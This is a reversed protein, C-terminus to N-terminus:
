RTKVLAPADHCAGATAVLPMVARAFREVGEMMPERHNDALIAFVPPSLRFRESNELNPMNNGTSCSDCTLFKSAPNATALRKTNGSTQKAELAFPM